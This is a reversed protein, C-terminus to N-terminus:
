GGGGGAEDKDEEEEELDQSEEYLPNLVEGKLHVKAPRQEDQEGPDPEYARKRSFM